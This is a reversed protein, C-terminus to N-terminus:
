NKKKTPLPRKDVPRVTGCVDVGLLKREDQVPECIYSVLREACCKYTGELLRRDFRWESPLIDKGTGWIECCFESLGSSCKISGWV